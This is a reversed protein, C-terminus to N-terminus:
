NHPSSSSQLGSVASLLARAGLMLAREDIDFWPTGCARYGEDPKAGGVALYTGPVVRLFEAFSDSSLVPPLELIQSDGALNYWISALVRTTIGPDNTLGPIGEVLSVDSSTNFTSDVREALAHARRTAIDRQRSDFTYLGASV